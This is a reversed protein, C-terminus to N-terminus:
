LYRKIDFLKIANETTIQSIKDPNISKVESIYNISKIVEEPDRFVYPSDTEVLLERLDAEKIVKKRNKSRLGIISFYANLHKSARKYHEITGSFFHFMVPMQFDFEILTSIIDEESKRSHIVVPKKLKEALKLMEEFVYWQKELDETTKGWHYDLGIEGIANPSNKKIFGKWKEIEMTEKQATQPAIGLVFPLNFKEATKVAKINSSHSYGVVVPVIGSHKIIEEQKDKKIEQFHSHADIIM